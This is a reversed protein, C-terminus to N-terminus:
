KAKWKVVWDRYVHELSDYDEMWWCGNNWALILESLDERSRGDFLYDWREIYKRYANGNPVDPTRRIRKHLFRKGRRVMDPSNYKLIPNKRYSRSM